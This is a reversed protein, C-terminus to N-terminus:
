VKKEFFGAFSKVIDYSLNRVEDPTTLELLDRYTCNVEATCQVIDRVIDKNRIIDRPNDCLDMIIFQFYKRPDQIKREGKIKLNKIVGFWFRPEIDDGIDLTSLIFGGRGKGNRLESLSTNRSVFCRGIYRYVWTEPNKSGQWNVFQVYTLGLKEGIGKSVNDLVLYSHQYLIKTIEIAEKANANVENLKSKSLM